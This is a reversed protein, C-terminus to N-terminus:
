ELTKDAPSVLQLAASHFGICSLSVVHRGVDEPLWAHRAWCQGLLPRNAREWSQWVGRQAFM